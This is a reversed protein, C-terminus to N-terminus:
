RKEEPNKMGKINGVKGDARELQLRLSAVKEEAEKLLFQRAGEWTDHWAHHESSKSERCGYGLFVTKETEKIVEFPEIKTGNTATRYKIM